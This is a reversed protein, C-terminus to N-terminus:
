WTNLVASSYNVKTLSEEYYKDKQELRKIEYEETGSAKILSINNIRDTMDADIERKRDFSIIMKRRMDVFLVVGLINVILLYALAVTAVLEQHQTFMIVIATISATISYIFNTIFQQVGFSINQTDAVLRTLINGSVHDFYFDVDQDALANLIKVRQM